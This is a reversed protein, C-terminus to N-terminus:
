QAPDGVFKLYDLVQSPICLQEDFRQDPIWKFSNTALVFPKTYLKPDTLTITLNLHNHDSRVYREEVQADVSHPYGANNLWTNSDLGV